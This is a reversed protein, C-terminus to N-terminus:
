TAFITPRRRFGSGLRAFFARVDNFHRRGLRLLDSENSTLIGGIAPMSYMATEILDARRFSVGGAVRTKM